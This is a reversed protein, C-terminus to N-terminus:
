GGSEIQMKANRLCNHMYKGFSLHVFASLPIRTFLNKPQFSYRWTVETTDQQQNFWWQGYAVATLHRAFNSFDSIKYAFYFPADFALLEERLTDGSTFHITRYAGPASWPGQHIESREVGHVPGYHQLMKPLSAPNTVYNFVVDCPANINIVAVQNIVGKAPISLQQM